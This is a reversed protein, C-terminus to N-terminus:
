NLVRHTNSAFFCDIDFTSGDRQTYFDVLSQLSFPLELGFLDVLRLVFRAAEIEFGVPLGGTKGIEKELGSIVSVAVPLLTQQDVELELWSHLGARRFRESISRYQHLMAIMTQFHCYEQFAMNTVQPDPIERMTKLVTKSYAQLDFKEGSKEVMVMVGLSVSIRDEMTEVDLSVDYGAEFLEQMMALRVTEAFFNRLDDTDANSDM